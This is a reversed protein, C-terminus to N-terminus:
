YYWYQYKSVTKQLIIPYFLCTVVNMSYFQGIYSLSVYVKFSLPFGLINFNLQFYGNLSRITYTTQENVSTFTFTSAGWDQGVRLSGMCQLGGPEKTWSNKLCSHQLPNGNEEGPSIGLGPILSLDGASCSSEKRDSGGPFGWKMRQFPKLFTM